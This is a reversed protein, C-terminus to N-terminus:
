DGYSIGTYNDEDSFESNFGTFDDVEIPFSSEESDYVYAIDQCTIQISLYKNNKVNLSVTDAMCEPLYTEIQKKIISKLEGLQSAMMHRYMILGCGMEPFLPNKGPTLLLLNLLLKGRADNDKLVTPKKFNDTTLLYETM